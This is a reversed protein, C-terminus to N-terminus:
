IFKIFKTSIKMPILDNWREEITGCIDEKWRFYRHKKDGGMWLHYLVLQILNSRFCLNFVNFFM